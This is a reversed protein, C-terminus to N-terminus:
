TVSRGAFLLAVVLAHAAGYGVGVYHSFTPHTGPKRLERVAWSLALLALVGSAYLISEPILFHREVARALATPATRTSDLYWVLGVFLALISAPVWCLTAWPFDAVRKTVCAGLATNLPAPGRHNTSVFL